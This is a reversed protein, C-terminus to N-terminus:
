LEINIQVNCANLVHQLEHVHFTWHFAKNFEIDYNHVVKINCDWTSVIVSRGYADERVYGAGDEVEFGNKILIDHGIKIPEVDSLENILGFKEKYCWGHEPRQFIECVRHYEGNTKCRVWDGIMLENANM